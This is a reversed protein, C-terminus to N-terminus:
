EIPRPDAFDFLFDSHTLKDKSTVRFPTPIAQLVSSYLLECRAASSLKFPDLLSELHERKVLAGQGEDERAPTYAMPNYVLLKYSLELMV